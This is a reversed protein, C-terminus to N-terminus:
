KKVVEEWKALQEKIKKNTRKVSAELANIEESLEKEEIAMALWGWQGNWYDNVLHKIIEDPSKNSFLQHYSRHDKDSIMAINNDSCTGGRSSPLIHHRTLGNSPKNRKKKNGM